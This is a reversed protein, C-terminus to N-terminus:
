MLANMIEQIDLTAYIKNSLSLLKILQTKGYGLGDAPHTHPILTMDKESITQEETLIVRETTFDKMEEEEQERQVCFVTQGITVPQGFDIFAERIKKGNIITGNSSELDKIYVRDGKLEVHLHKRSVQTDTLSVEIGQERGVVAKKEFTFAVGCDPGKEIVFRFKPKSKKQFM